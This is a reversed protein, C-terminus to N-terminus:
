REVERYGSRMTQVAVVRGSRHYIRPIRLSLGCTIEYPITGHLRALEDVTIPASGEGGEGILVVEDGVRVTPGLSTLDVTIMDMSVRGVVPVRRGGVFVEARNSLSRPYGDAYGIPVVGIRSGASATWSRGYGVSAPAHYENIKVIRSTLRLIPRLDPWRRVEDSPHVGYAIIGPRILTSPFSLEEPFDVIGGSNSIHTLPIAIGRAALEAHLARVQAIQGRSFESDGDDASPFHSYLGEIEIAPLAAIAAIVDAPHEAVVGMRGIGTDVNIHCVARVSLTAAVRDVEQAYSLSGVTLRGGAAIAAELEGPFIEELILVPTSLGLDRLVLLEEVNAVGFMEVGAAAAERAIAQLGHGYGDAKIAPMVGAGPVRARIAHLNHVLADLDVWARTERVPDHPHYSVTM